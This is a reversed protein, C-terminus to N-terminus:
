PKAEPSMTATIMSSKWRSRQHTRTSPIQKHSIELLLRPYRLASLLTTHIYHRHPSHKQPQRQTYIMVTSVLRAQFVRHSLITSKHSFMPPPFHRDRPTVANTEQQRGNANAVTPPPQLTEMRMQTIKMSPNQYHVHISESEEFHKAESTIQPVTLQLHINM